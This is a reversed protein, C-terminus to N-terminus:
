IPDLGSQTWVLNPGSWIPGLSSQTRVLNAGSWVPDLGTKFRNQDLVSSAGPSRRSQDPTSRLDYCQIQRVKRVNSATRYAYSNTVDDFLKDNADNLAKHIQTNAGPKPGPLSLVRLKVADKDQGENFGFVIDSEIGFKIVAVHTGASSVNVLDVVGAVFKRVDPWARTISASADLVFALDLICPDDVRETVYFHSVTM